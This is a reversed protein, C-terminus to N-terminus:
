MEIGRNFIETVIPITNKNNMMDAITDDSVILVNSKRRPNNEEINKYVDQVNNSYKIFTKPDNLSKLSNNDRKKLLTQHKEVNPDKVYLYINDIISYAYDNQQKILNLLANTKVSGSGGIM